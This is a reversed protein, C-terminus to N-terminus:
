AKTLTLTQSADNNYHNPILNKDRARNIKSLWSLSNRQGRETISETASLSDLIEPFVTEGETCGKSQTACSGSNITFYSIGIYRGGRM